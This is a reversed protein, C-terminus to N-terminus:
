DTPDGAWDVSSYARLALTSQPSFRLSHFFTGKLYQLIRLVDAHHTSQPTSM